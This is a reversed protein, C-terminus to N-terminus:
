GNINYSKNILNMAKMFKHCYVFPGIIILTGLINWLWYHLAGFSYNCGRRKLENGIRKALGHNWVFFYIGFTLCTLWPVALMHVTRKGDYRSAVINIEGSIESQVVIGYIGFTILSLLVMKILGRHTPLQLAPPYHIEAKPTEVQVTEAQPFSNGCCGCFTASDDFQANCAPCTKM